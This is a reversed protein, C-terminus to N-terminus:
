PIWESPRKVRTLTVNLPPKDWLVWMKQDKWNVSDPELQMDFNYLVKALILRMEVYALSNLTLQNSAQTLILLM